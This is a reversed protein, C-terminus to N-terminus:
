SPIQFEKWDRIVNAQKPILDFLKRLSESTWRRSKMEMWHWFLVFTVLLAAAEYYSEMSGLLTLVISFVYSSLVGTAVLVSMNLKRNKLSYYAGTNFISGAWFVIPTTLLLLM